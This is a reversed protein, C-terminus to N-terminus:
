SSQGKFGHLMWQSHSSQSLGVCGAQEGSAQLSLYAGSAKHKITVRNPYYPSPVLEWLKDDSHSYPRVKLRGNLATLYSMSEMAIIFYGEGGVKQFIWPSQKNEMALEDGQSTLHFGPWEKSGILIGPALREEKPLDGGFLARRGRESHRFVDWYGHGANPVFVLQHRHGGYNNLHEFYYMGRTLRDPGQFNAACSTGLNRYASEKTSNYANDHVALLYIVKRSLFDQTRAKISYRDLRNCPLGTHGSCVYHNKQDPRFSFGYKYQEYACPYGEHCLCPKSNSSHLGSSLNAFEPKLEFSTKHRHYPDLFHPKELGLGDIEESVYAGGGPFIGAWDPRKEDLYLYNSPNAVVYTFNIAPYNKEVDSFIGYRQVFQGGASHGAIVVDRLLPLAGYVLNKKILADILTFSSVGGDVSQDGQIWGKKTWYWYGDLLSNSSGEDYVRFQPVFILTEDSIQSVTAARFLAQYLGKADRGYGHIGILLRKIPRGNTGPLHSTYASLKKQFFPLDVQCDQRYPNCSSALCSGAHIMISIKLSWFFLKNM